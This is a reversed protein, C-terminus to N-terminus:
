GAVPRGTVARVMRDVYDSYVADVGTALLRHLVDDTHAEYGFALVGHEHAIAVHDATWDVQNMNLVDIGSSALTAARRALGEDIRDLRTSDVLRVDASAARWRRVITWDPHCLWLRGVAGSGAARAIDLIRAATAVDKVDLSLEYDTGCSAYLEDLTPIYAPLEARTVDAAALRGDAGFRGDHDLIVDGDATLWADSELGTAGMRLAMQFADLTNEPAHASAGRHAFAIPRSRHHDVGSASEAVTM